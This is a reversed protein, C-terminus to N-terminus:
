NTQLIKSLDFMPAYMAILVIGVVGGIILIIFPEMISGLMKTQHETEKNHQVALREFMVDLANAEEAVNVLSVLKHDYIKHKKLASSFTSGRTVDMKIVQLSKEIPYFSIMKEVLELANVLPTKAKLLLSLSQSFRTLYIKKVLKGFFPIRLILNSIFGRYRDNKKSYIHISIGLVIVLIFLLLLSSFHESLYIINQTLTPLERGFQKFVNSFMPVVYKMMFYLVGFTLLLVFAPYMLVSILQRRLQIKREFFQFLEALIAGLTRSEEGIKISYYEYPSFLKSDRMSEYLPKGIIVDNMISTIRDRDKVKAQQAALIELSRKFDVGADLLSKLEKYFGVKDKDSFKNGFSLEKKWFSVDNPQEDKQKSSKVKPINSLDIAM